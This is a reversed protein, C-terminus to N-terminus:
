AGFDKFFLIFFDFRMFSGSSVSSITELFMRSGVTQNGSRGPGNPLDNFNECNLNESKVKREKVWSTLQLKFIM